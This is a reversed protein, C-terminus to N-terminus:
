TQNIRALNKRDGFRGTLVSANYGRWQPNMDIFLGM